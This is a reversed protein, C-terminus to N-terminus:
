QAWGPEVRFGLEHTMNSTVALFFRKFAILAGVLRASVGIKSSVYLCDM